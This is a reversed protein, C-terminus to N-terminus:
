VSQQSLTNLLEAFRKAYYWTKQLFVIGSFWSINRFCSKLSGAAGESQPPQGAAPLDEGPDITVGHLLKGPSAVNSLDLM